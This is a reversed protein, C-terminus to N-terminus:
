GIYLRGRETPISMHLSASWPRGRTLHTKRLSEPESVNSTGGGSVERHRATTRTSRLGMSATLQATKGEGQTRQPERSGCSEIAGIQSRQQVSNGGSLPGAQERQPSASSPGLGALGLVLACLLAGLISAGPEPIARQRAQRRAGGAKVRATAKPRYSPRIFSAM